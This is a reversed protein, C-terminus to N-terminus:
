NIDGCYTKKPAWLERRLAQPYIRLRDFDKFSVWDVSIQGDDISPGNQPIAGDALQCDFYFEVQHIDSDTSAFEHNKGIYERMLVLDNVIVESAIEERCERKLTSIMDECKDQGGGPFIYYDGSEDSKRVLLIADDKRIIAKVSNRIPKQNKMM